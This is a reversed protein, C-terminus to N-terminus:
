ITARLVGGGALGRRISVALLRIPLGIPLRLMALRLRRLRWIPLVALLRDVWIALLDITCRCWLVSFVRIRLRWVDLRLIRLICLVRRLRLVALLVAPLVVPLVRLRLVRLLARLRLIRLVALLRIRLGWVFLRLVCLLRIATRGGTRRIGCGRCGWIAGIVALGVLLVAVLGISVLLIAIM